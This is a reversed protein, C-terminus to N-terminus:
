KPSILPEQVHIKEKNILLFIPSLCELLKRFYKNLLVVYSNVAVTFVYM